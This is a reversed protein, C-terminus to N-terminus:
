ETLRVSASAEVGGPAVTVVKHLMRKGTNSVIEVRIECPGAPVGFAVFRGTKVNFHLPIAAKGVVAEGSVGSGPPPREGIEGNLVGTASSDAELTFDLRIVGSPNNSITEDSAYHRLGAGRVGTQKLLVKLKEAGDFLLTHEAMEYPNIRVSFYVGKKINDLFYEGNIGTPSSPEAPHADGSYHLKVLADCVPQGKSDVVRGTLSFWEEGSSHTSEFVLKRGSGDCHEIALPRPREDAATPLTMEIMLISLLPLGYRMTVRYM